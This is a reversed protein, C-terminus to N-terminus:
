RLGGLLLPLATHLGREGYAPHHTGPHFDATVPVGLARLRAHLSRNLTRIVVEAPDFPSDPDLAGPHGDGSSLFVATHRLRPALAFPDHARWVDDQERPDGWLAALSGGHGEELQPWASEVFDPHLLHVPGSFSAAARFMGPRRAAYSVAGFGGMSLGAAARARGAGYDRELLPRLEDLHFTEWAPPGGAGGNWWDTYFGIRGAEPMVVLVDRLEQIEQIDTELTWMRYTSPEFGGHLVYLVPWRRRTGREWWGDPTLLRVQAPFGLAPSDLTLDLLREGVREAGIVTAGGPRAAAPGGALLAAAAAPLGAALLARRRM